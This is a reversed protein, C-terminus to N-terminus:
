IINIKDPNFVFINLARTEVVYAGDYHNNKLWDYFWTRELLSYDGITINKYVEDSDEVDYPKLDYKGSWLDNYLKYGYSEETLDWYDELKRFDFINVDDVLEVSYVYKGYSKAFDKDTTLFIPNDYDSDLFTGKKIKFNDFETNSGHYFIMSNFSEYTKLYKM